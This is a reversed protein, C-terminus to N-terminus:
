IKIVRRQRLVIYYFLFCGILCFITAVILAAIAVGNLSDGERGKAVNPGLDSVAGPGKSNNNNNNNSKNDNDKDDEDDKTDAEPAEDASKGEADDNNDVVAWEPVSCSTIAELQLDFLLSEGTDKDVSEHIGM